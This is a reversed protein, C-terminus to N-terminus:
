LKLLQHKEQDGQRNRPDSAVVSSIHSHRNLLYLGRTLKSFKLGDFIDSEVTVEKLSEGRYEPMVAIPKRTVRQKKKEKM